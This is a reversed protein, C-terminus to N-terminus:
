GEWDIGAAEMISAFTEEGMEQAMFAYTSRAYDIWTQREADTLHYVEMGNEELTAYAMAEDAQEIEYEYAFADWAAQRVIEQLDAPLSAWTDSNFMISHGVWQWHIDTVYDCVEHYKQQVMITNAFEGGDCTKTQFATYCESYPLVTANCIGSWFANVIYDEYSLLTLDACDEPTVVPHKSNMIDRFTGTGIAIIEVGHKRGTDRCLEFLPAEPNAYLEIVQDYDAFLYPISKCAFIPDVNAMISGYYIDIEGDQVQNFLEVDGGLVGAWYSTIEVRGDTRENVLDIFKQIGYGFGNFETINAPDNYMSGLSLQYTEGSDKPAEAPADASGSEPQTAPAESTQGCAVLTFVMLVALVLALIKKM